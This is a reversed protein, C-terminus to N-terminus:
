WLILQVRAGAFNKFSIENHNIMLDPPREIKISAMNISPDPYDKSIAGWSAITWFRDPAAVGVTNSRVVYIDSSSPDLSVLLSNDANRYIRAYRAQVGDVRVSKFTVPRWYQPSISWAISWGILFGVTLGLTGVISLLLRKSM